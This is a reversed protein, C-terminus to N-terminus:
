LSDIYEPMKEGAKLRVYAKKWDPRYGAFRGRRREKGEVVATRVAAVKVKFLTEVAQKVETKTANEAVEFVLTSQTEKIGMGKETILPRRIVTYLTPM